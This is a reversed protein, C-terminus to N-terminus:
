RGWVARYAARFEVPRGDSLPVYPGSAPLNHDRDILQFGIGEDPMDAPDEGAWHRNLVDMGAWGAWEHSVALAMTQQGSRILDVNAPLGEGGLLLVDDQGVTAPLVSLQFLPDIPVQIANVDPHQRLAAVLSDQLDGSLVDADTFAVEDALRCGDCTELQQRFGESIYGLVLATPSVQDIVEAHGDTHVMAYAAKIRGYLMASERATMGSVTPVLDFLPEGPQDLGPDDCDFAFLGVLVVDQAKAASLPGQVASCDIGVLVIADAGAGVAQNIADGQVSTTLQGDVVTVDWGLERAAEATGESPLRCSDIAQYCSVVWVNKDAVAAPGDSPPQGFTGEYARDVLARADEMPDGTQDAFTTAPSDDSPRSSASTDDSENTTCGATMAMTVIVAVVM